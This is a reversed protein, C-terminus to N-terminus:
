FTRKHVRDSPIVEVFKVVAFQRKYVARRAVNASFGRDILEKRPNRCSSPYDHIVHVSVRIPTPDLRPNTHEAISQFSLNEGFNTPTDSHQALSSFLCGLVAKAPGVQVLAPPM